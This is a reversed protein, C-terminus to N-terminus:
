FPTKVGITPTVGFKQYFRALALDNGMKEM